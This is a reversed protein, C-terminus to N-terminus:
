FTTIIKKRQRKVSLTTKLGDIELTHTEDLNMQSIKGNCKNILEL